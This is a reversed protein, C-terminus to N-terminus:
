YGPLGYGFQVCRGNIARLTTNRGPERLVIALYGNCKPCPRGLNVYTSIIEDADNGTYAARKYMM